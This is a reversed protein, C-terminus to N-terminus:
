VRCFYGPLPREKRLGCQSELFDEVEDATACTYEKSSLRRAGSVLQVAPRVFVDLDLDLVQM